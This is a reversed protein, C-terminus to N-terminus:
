WNVKTVTVGAATAQQIMNLTGQSGKFAIVRKPAAKIVRLATLMRTNRVVGARRGLKDWEAKFVQGPYGREIRWEDALTDAGPAGGTIVSPKGFQRVLADLGSQLALVEQHARDMDAVSYINGVVGYTRGGCILWRENIEM